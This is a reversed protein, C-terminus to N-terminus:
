EGIVEFGAPFCRGVGRQIGIIMEVM